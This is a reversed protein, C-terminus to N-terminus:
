YERMEVLWSEGDSGISYLLNRISPLSEGQHSSSSAHHLRHTTLRASSTEEVYAHSSSQGESSPDAMM